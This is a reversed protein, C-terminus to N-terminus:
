WSGVALKKLRRRQSILLAAFALGGAIWTSPEPVAILDFEGTPTYDATFAYGSFTVLQNDAIGAFTGTMSTGDILVYTTGATFTLGSAITVDLTSTTGLGITGTSVLKDWNSTLTGSADIHVTNAGTLTLAGTTLTGVSASTGATGRPGPNLIAGATTNGLTVTGSITGSGGLVTGSGNVTVNGTGTGSGTTNSVYLTGATVSTGGTYTNAAYAGVRRRQDKIRGIGGAAAGDSIVGSVTNLGTNTGALTLTIGASTTGSLVSGGIVLVDTVSQTASNRFQYDGGCNHRQTAGSCAPCEGDGHREHYGHASRIAIEGASTLM